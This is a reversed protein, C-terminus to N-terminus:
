HAKAPRLSARANAHLLDLLQGVRLYKELVIREQASIRGSNNKRLLARIRVSDSAPFQLELLSRAAEPSLSGNRTAIIRELIDGETLPTAGTMM